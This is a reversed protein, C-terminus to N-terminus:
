HVATAAFTSQLTAAADVMFQGDAVVRDGLQLGDKIGVWHQDAPGPFIRRSVFRDPGIALVVYSGDPNELLAERPVALLSDARGVLDVDLVSGPQLPVQQPLTIRVVYSQLANDFSAQALSLPLSAMKGARAFEMRVPSALANFQSPTLIVDLQITRDEVINYLTAAPGAAAGDRANVATILGAHASVVTLSELPRRYQEIADISTEAISLHLFADRQRKRERALSAILEGNQGSMDTITSLMQDRRNLTDIYDRQRQELEPSFFEFLPTGAKVRIGRYQVHLQRIWGDAPATVAYENAGDAAVRGWTHLRPAIAHKEVSVLRLGLNAQTSKAVVAATNQRTDEVPQRAASGSESPASQEPLHHHHPAVSMRPNSPEDVAVLDMGCIPCRGPAKERVQPHMPCTYIRHSHGDNLAVLKHDGNPFVGGNEAMVNLPLVALGLGIVVIFLKM